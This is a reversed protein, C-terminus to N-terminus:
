DGSYSQDTESSEWKAYDLAATFVFDLEIARGDYVLDSLDHHYGRQSEEM